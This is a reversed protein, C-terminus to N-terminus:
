DSEPPLEEDVLTRIWEPLPYFHRTTQGGIISVVPTFPYDSRSNDLIRVQDCLPIAKKVHALTRPIRQEVKEDPVNHGGESVRQSIRAKNLDTHELHILVLIIQYGLARARGLFDIKSPHSFVTEFCFSNGAQIQEKCMQEAIKAANYSNGEPDDPYIERAIQDANVFPIGLPKLMLRYFTSKGAGNGGVLIWLQKM